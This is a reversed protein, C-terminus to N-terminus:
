TRNVEQIVAEARTETSVDEVIESVYDYKELIIQAIRYGPLIVYPNVPDLNQLVVKVEGKYDPDIVGALIHVGHRIALGSRPAIRGYTGEPFVLSIGTSVVMRRGPLIVYNSTSFLDFGASGPSGRVPLIANPTLRSVHLAM